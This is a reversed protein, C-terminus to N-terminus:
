SEKAALVRQEGAKTLAWCRYGCSVIDNGSADSEVYVLGARLLEIMRRAVQVVTLGAEDAISLTNRLAPWPRSSADFKAMASLIRDAHKGAFKSAREAADVSTGPDQARVRLRLECDIAPAPRGTAPPTWGLRILEDRILDIRLPQTNMKWGECCARCSVGEM